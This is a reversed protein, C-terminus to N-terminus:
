IPATTERIMLKIPLEVQGESPKGAIRKLIELAARTGLEEAPFHVTTLPPTVNSALELDEFGTLSLQSPVSVGLEKCMALAGVAIIDHGCIVASLPRGGGLLKRIGTRGTDYSIPGEVVRAGDNSLKHRKLERMLWHLREAQWESSKFGAIIGIERHGLSVLHDVVLTAAERNDFGINTNPSGPDYSWTSVCPIGYDELLSILESDHRRGFLLIGDAGREIFRRAHLLESHPDFDSCGLALMYGHQSLVDQLAFTTKSFMAHDVSPILGGIMKTRRSVLARGVGQVVYNLKKVAARVANLKDDRVSSPNSLARSVTAISVGALQAVDRM